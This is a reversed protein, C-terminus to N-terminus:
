KATTGEREISKLLSKAVHMDSTDLGETFWKCVGELLRQADDRKGQRQWLQALSTAARLELSKAQQAIAIELAKQFSAEAAQRDSSQMRLEGELRYLEAEYWREGRRDNIELAEALVALGEDLEGAQGHIEALQARYFPEWVATGSAPFVNLSARAQIVAPEHQGQAALHASQLIRAWSLFLTLGREQARMIAADVHDQTAQKEGLLKHLMAALVSAWVSSFPHQLEEALTLAEGSHARAQDPYGLLWLSLADYGYAAVGVDLGAVAILAHHQSPDYVSISREIHVRAATVEGRYFFTLANAMHAQLLLATDNEHEALQLLQEALEGAVKMESRGALDFVCLGALIGFLKPTEGLQQCLDRARNFVREVDPAGWGKANMLPLGLAMQLNLEHQDRAQTDPLAQLVDLGRTYHAIAEANAWREVAREGARLWYPLAQEVLEAETYHHAVREPQVDATDPFQDELLQAIQQHYHQRVSRLLSGYAADRILVHRFFYKARPPRGQQNLLETDVLQALRDRLASEDVSSLKAIMEYSFDRGLVAGLQAIDRVEPWRDLRAMLLDQLTAPIALSPLTQTALEYRDDVVHLFDSELVMKTLESVFLPVGDTKDVIEDVVQAPLTKGESLGTIMAEVESRELRDLTVQTMHSRLNWSPAFDSRYTLVNMVPITATEGFTLELLELTSPDALHVDEWILLAPRRKAEEVMWANLAEHTRQRQQEPGIDLPAYQEHNLELSFLSAFLPVVETLKFPHFRELVREIKELKVSSSDDPEFRFMRKLHAILPHFPSNRHYPSCYFTLRTFGERVAYASIAQTLATKGIGAEGKILFTQGQGKKSQEWRRLLLGLEEHRGLLFPVGSGSGAHLVGKSDDLVGVVRSVALPATVGGLRQTGLEELDVSGAVLQATASSIVLTNPEASAQIRAAVNPTQGLALQERRDGTGVEGVVVLGTHIGVPVALHQVEDAQGPVSITKIANIIELGAHVARRADDEHARPYGFYVLLGDGLYQAIHGDHADIITAATDQYTRIVQRLDEPDLRESLVTSGVLDCFMVSLQRREATTDLAEFEIRPAGDPAASVERIRIEAEVRSEGSWVMMKGDKDVACEKIEILEETLAELMADGLNFELRLARYSVRGERKLWATANTVLESFKM